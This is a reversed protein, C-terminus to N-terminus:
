MCSFSFNVPEGGAFLKEYKAPVAPADKGALKAGLAVENDPGGNYFAADVIKGDRISIWADGSRGLNDPCIAPYVATQLKYKYADEADDQRLQMELAEREEGTLQSVAAPAAPKETPTSGAAPAAPKATPTSGCAALFVVLVLSWARINM